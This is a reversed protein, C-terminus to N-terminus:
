WLTNPGKTLDASPYSLTQTKEGDNRQGNDYRQGYAGRRLRIEAFVKEDLKGQRRLAIQQEFEDIESGIESALGDSMEGVLADKWTSSLKPMRVGLNASIIM